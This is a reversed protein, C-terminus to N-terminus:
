NSIGHLAELLIDGTSRLVLSGYMEPGLLQISLVSTRLVLIFQIVKEKSPKKKRARPM